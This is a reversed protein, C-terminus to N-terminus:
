RRVFSEDASNVPSFVLKKTTLVFNGQVPPKGPLSMDAIESFVPADEKLDGLIALM